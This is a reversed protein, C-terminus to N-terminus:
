LNNEKNYEEVSPMGKEKLVENLISFDVVSKQPFAKKPNYKEMYDWIDNVFTLNPYVTLPMNNYLNFSADKPPMSTERHNAKYWKESENFVIDSAEKRNEKMWETTEIHAEILKKVVDPHQQLFGKRVLLVQKPAVGNYAFDKQPILNNYGPEQFFVRALFGEMKGKRFDELMKINNGLRIKVKGGREVIDMGNKKLTNAVTIVGAYDHNFVGVTGGALGKVDTIKKQTLFRDEPGNSVNAIAVFNDGNFFDSMNSAYEAITGWYCYIFDYKEEKMEKSVADINKTAITEIKYNEGLKDQLTGKNIMVLGQPPGGFNIVNAIKIVEKPGTNTNNSSTKVDKASSCGAILLLTVLLVLLKKM